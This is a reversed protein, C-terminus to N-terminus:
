EQEKMAKLLPPIFQKKRSIMGPFLCSGGKCETGFAKEILQEAGDGIYLLESCGDFVNTLLYFAMDIHQERLASPMYNRILERAQSLTKPSVFSGQGVGIQLGSTKFLKYDQQFLEEVTKDELSEGAEFMERAFTDIDIGAIKALTEAAREDMATCTPSNFRLTDSLIAACLIGAIEPPIEVGHEIFMQHIITATCGVPHNRFFVPGNTEISAIRHHDIIELIDADEHGNVCQTKENHDILILQKRKLNLLNRRSVVGCYDGNRDLVPFYVHRLRSMVERAEEVSDSLNFSIIDRIMYYSIPISQNIMCSAMFTDFPTSIVITGNQNAIKQITKAVPAGDCVIICAVDLEIACLQTEYRSSCIVIDGEEAAAEIVEPGGAGVIVKGVAHKGEIDGCVLSGEMTKLINAYSTKSEALINASMNDMNAIAIDNISIIGDLHKGDNVIPLTSIKKNQMLMIADHMTMNGDVGPHERIDIDQVQTSVDEFLRPAEMGFRKLVFETEHNIEGARAPEYGLNSTANKLYSYAIASAISDTDPNKHGIVIIKRKDKLMDGM